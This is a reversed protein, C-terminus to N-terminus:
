EGPGQTWSLLTDGLQLHIGGDVVSIRGVDDFTGLTVSGTHQAVNSGDNIGFFHATYVGGQNFAPCDVAVVHSETLFHHHFGADPLDRTKWLTRGDIADIGVIGDELRQCQPEVM